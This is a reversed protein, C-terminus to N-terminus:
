AIVLGEPVTLGVLPCAVCIDRKRRKFFWQAFAANGQDGGRRRILGIFAILSRVCRVVGCGLKIADVGIADVAFGIQADCIPMSRFCVVASSM